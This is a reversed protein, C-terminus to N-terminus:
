AARGPAVPTGSGGAGDRAGRQDGEAPEATIRAITSDSTRPPMGEHLLRAPGWTLAGHSVLYLFAVFVVAAFVLVEVLGFAGLQHFDVAWPYLFIIEIDFIIFIMAVLYFRVPFRQPPEHDPIIGCEYPATKSSTPKKQPALLSSAVFSVAAFIAGLVLLLLIPLYQDM